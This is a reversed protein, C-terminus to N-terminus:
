VMVIFALAIFISHWYLVAFILQMLEPATSIILGAYLIWLGSDIFNLKQRKIHTM